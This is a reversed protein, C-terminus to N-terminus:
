FFSRSPAFIHAHRLYSATQIFHKGRSINHYICGMEDIILVRLVLTKTQLCRGLQSLIKCTERGPHFWLVKSVVASCHCQINRLSFLPAFSQSFVSFHALSTFRRRIYAIICMGTELTVSQCGMKKMRELVKRVLSKGIGKRRYSAQVALMGIYGTPLIKPRGNEIVEERDIKCVM